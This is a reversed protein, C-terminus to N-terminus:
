LCIKLMMNVAKPMPRSIFEKTVDGSCISKADNNIPMPKPKTKTFIFTHSNDITLACLLPFAIPMSVELKKKPWNKEGIIKWGTTALIPM